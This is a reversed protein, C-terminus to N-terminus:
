NENEIFYGGFEQKKQELKQELNDDNGWQSVRNHNKAHMTVNALDIKM